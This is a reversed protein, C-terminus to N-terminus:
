EFHRWNSFRGVLERYWSPAGEFDKLMHNYRISKNLWAGELRAPLDEMLWLALQLYHHRVHCRLAEFSTRKYIYNLSPLGIQEEIHQALRGKNTTSVMIGALQHLVMFFDLRFRSSQNAPAYLSNLCADFLAHLQETAFGPQIRPAYRLDMECQHCSHMPLAEKLERGFDGRFHNIPTGCEPCADHLEVQHKPCYTFLAIRWQKRFYPTTDEALCQPCFQQGFGQRVMGHNRVTIIWRQQGAYRPTPYLRRNYSLLTTKLITRYPIGTQKSLTSVLWKPASRDSDRNWPSNTNGFLMWSLTQLKIGNAAALRVLWSSLLEDPLPAPHAPWTIGYSM